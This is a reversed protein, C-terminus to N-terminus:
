LISPLGLLQCLDPSLHTIIHAPTLLLFGVILTQFELVVLVDHNALLSTRLVRGQGM